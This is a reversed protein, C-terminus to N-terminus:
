GNIKIANSVFMLLPVRPEYVRFTKIRVTEYKLQVIRNEILTKRIDALGRSRSKLQLRGSTSSFFFILYDRALVFVSRFAM